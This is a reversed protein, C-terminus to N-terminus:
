ALDPIRSRVGALLIERGILGSVLAIDPALARDSELKPVHERVVRRAEEVGPATTAGLLDLGQAGCLAEIALVDRTNRVVAALKLAAHVGM